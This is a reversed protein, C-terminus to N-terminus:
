GGNVRGEDWTARAIIEDELALSRTVYIRAILWTLPYFLVGLFLWTLTFGWIRTNAIAPLYFNVLPIGVLIVVFIAFCKLSLKLQASMVLHLYQESYVEYRPAIVGSQVPTGTGAPGAPTDGM